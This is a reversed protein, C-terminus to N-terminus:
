VDHSLALMFSVPGQIIGRFLVVRIIRLIIYYTYYMICSAAGSPVRYYGTHLSSLVQLSEVNRFPELARERSAQVRAGSKASVEQIGM